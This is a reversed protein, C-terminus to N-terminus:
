KVAVARLAEYHPLAGELVDRSEAGVEPLPGEPGAFGTSRHIAGYWHPAWVGDQPHPGAPWHLMAPDFAIGIADCLKRLMGEPDDRIDASDIVIGGLRDYLAQQQAFGVDALTPAERKAAYSAIVRAPHRILHVNVCDEAWDLPFGDLMHQAMHKMYLHPKAGSDFGEPVRAADQPQAALVADRLRPDYTSKLGTETQTYPRQVEQLWRSKPVDEFEPFARAMAAAAEDYTRASPNRGLYGMIFGIGKPDLVPGVDNLAVGTLREKAVAALTM